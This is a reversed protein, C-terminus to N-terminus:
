MYNISKGVRDEVEILTVVNQLGRIFGELVISEYKKFLDNIIKEAEISLPKLELTICVEVYNAIEACIKASSSGIEEITVRGIGQIDFSKMNIM